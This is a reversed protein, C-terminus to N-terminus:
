RLKFKKVAPASLNDGADRARVRFTHRGKKLHKYTKPSACAAFPKKDLRCELRYAPENSSFAFSARRKRSKITAPGLRAQPAACPHLLEDAGIDRRNVGDCDGDSGRPDADMDTAATSPAAPNGQDIAPSGPGIHLDPPEANPGLLLPDSSSQFSDCGNPNPPSPVPGISYTISCTASTDGSLLGIGIRAISSDITLNTDRLVIDYLSSRSFTVNVISVNGGGSPDDDVSALGFATGSIADGELSASLTDRIDVGSDFAAGTTPAGEIRNHDLSVDTGPGIALIGDTRESAPRDITNGSITADARADIGVGLGGTEHMGSIQNGIIKSAGSGGLQIGKYFGSLTNQSIEPSASFVEIGLQEDATGGGSDVFSNLSLTPSGAQILVDAANDANDREFTNSTLYAFDNLVVAPGVNAELKFGEVVYAPDGTDVTIAPDSGGAIVPATNATASRHLSNTGGITLNEFYTGSEVYIDNSSGRALAYGIHRCPFDPNTCDNPAANRIDDGSGLSVFLDTQGTAEAVAPIAAVAAVAIAAIALALRATKM